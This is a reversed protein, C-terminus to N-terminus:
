RGVALILIGVVLVVVAAISALLALTSIPEHNM